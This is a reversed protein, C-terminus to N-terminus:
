HIDLLKAANDYAIKRFTTESIKGQQRWSLLLQDLDVQMDPATMDTGFYLRDQFETLFRAGYNPDRSLANLATCDSLDGYLNPYKRFLKPVVGEETVLLNTKKEPQAKKSKKVKKAGENPYVKKIKQLSLSAM